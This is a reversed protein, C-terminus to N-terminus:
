EGRLDLWEETIFHIKYFLTIPYGLIGMELRSVGMAYRRKQVKGLEMKFTDRAIEM